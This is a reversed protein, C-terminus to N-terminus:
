SHRMLQIHEVSLFPHNTDACQLTLVACKQAFVVSDHLSFGQTHGYILGAMLADGAGSTNVIEVAWPELWGSESSNAFYVGRAGLSLVVNHVGQVLFWQAAAEVAQPTELVLGTLVEAEIQNPKLTHIRPLFERIRLAKSASVADMFIPAKLPLAFLETLADPSVNADAVIVDAQQLLGIQARVAQANLQELVAMDNVAVSLEGHADHVSVYTSTNAQAIQVVAQMDIGLHACHELLYQGYADDGVATFLHVQLALRALNEAINRVVGGCSSHILGLNSDGLVLAAGSRATVDINAGGIAVVRKM